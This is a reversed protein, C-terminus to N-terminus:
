SWMSRGESWSGCALGSRFCRTTRCSCWREKRIRFRRQFDCPLPHSANMFICEAMHSRELEYHINLRNLCSLVTCLPPKKASAVRGNCVCATQVLKFALPNWTEIQIMQTLCHTGAKWGRQSRDCILRGSFPVQQCFKMWSASGELHIKEYSYIEWYHNTHLYLYLYLYRESFICLLCCM